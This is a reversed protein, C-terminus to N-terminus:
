TKTQIIILFLLFLSFGIVRETAFLPESKRERVVKLLNGQKNMDFVIIPMNNERCMTFATPDMVKLRREIVEEFSINDFKRADPDKEPDATYVGDGPGRLASKPVTDGRGETRCCHRDHLVSERHWRFPHM